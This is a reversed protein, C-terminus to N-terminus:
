PAPPIAMIEVEPTIQARPYLLAHEAQFWPSDMVWYMDNISAQDVVIFDIGAEKLARRADAPSFSPDMLFGLGPAWIPIVKIPFGAIARQFYIDSSLVVKSKFREPNSEIFQSIFVSRSTVRDGRARLALETRWQALPVWAYDPRIALTLLSHLALLVMLPILWLARRRRFYAGSALAAIVALVAAAPAIVRYPYYLNGGTGFYGWVTLGAILLSFGALVLRQKKWIMLCVAGALAPLSQALCVLAEYSGLRVALQMKNLKSLTQMLHVFRPPSQPWLGMFGLTYFPNGTLAWVFLLWPAICAFSVGIMAVRASWPVRWGVGLFGFFLYALGYERTLAAAAAALGIVLCGAGPKEHLLRIRVVQTLIILASLSLFGIEQGILINTTVVGTAAVLFVALFSLDVGARLARALQWAAYLTMLYQLIVVPLCYTIDVRGILAYAWWYGSSVMFGISDPFAYLTFDHATVPPYFNFNGQQIGRSALYEWRIPVDFGTLRLMFIKAAFGIIIILIGSAGVLAVPSLRLVRLIRFFRLKFDVFSPKQFVFSQTLWLGAGGLLTACGMVCAVGWLTANWRLITAFTLILALLLNSLLFALPLEVRKLLLRSFVMGPLFHGLVVGVFFFM